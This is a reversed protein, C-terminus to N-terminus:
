RKKYNNKVGKKDHDLILNKTSLIGSIIDKIKISFKTKKEIKTISIIGVAFGIILFIMLYILNDQKKAPLFHIQSEIYEEPFDEPDDYFYQKHYKGKLFLDELQDSYHKSNSIGRQGSPIVSLGKKMNSLDIIMRESAGGTARGEGESIDVRSPNVTYGEGDAEYPGKSLAELGTLHPFYAKHLGGWRWASVKDTEYFDELFDITRDLAKIIIDDRDEIEATTIDDFWASNPTERMLKELVNLQPLKIADYEDFEDEFTYKMFLDRWKRYITPAALERYMEYDWKNLTTLIDDITSTKESTPLSEIADILYPTFFKAPTSSVDLQFKKMKDVDISGNETNNLLENIRRARYGAAYPQQLFYKRYEPGVVMQNASALYHQDPNETHPLEEFPIYGIWEGEGKSADYPFTGNENGDRIPVVGTPRIAINGYIDAYIINQAANGFWRSSENFEARNKAHNFGYYAITDYTIDHATWQPALVIDEEDLSQPLDDLFKNFVPGHLTRKVKFEIPSKGKISIDYSKTEYKKVTGNFIYHDSDIEQYYYWDMVDYRTNTFGWALHENHAVFPLPNGAVTFGYTNLDTDDAVLHAEYWLGPMNWSLHMDNCLIPKGTSSKTGDVVWNNSGLVFDRDLGMLNNKLEVKDINKLFNSVTNLVSTSPHPRPKDTLSNLANFSDNYSGYNPCIPIQYPSYRNFLEYYAEKGLAEYNILRYLDNYDWSLMLGMMKYFLLSNLLSWRKPKFGIIAYEIPLEEQHTEIYYNVGDAHRELEDVFDIEGNKDKEELADLSKEAWYKLGTALIYKDSDLSTEGLIESLEGQLFRNAMDMFFLRDQAHIYGLAFFLDDESEAYIHPIGWEDRYVIVEDDLGEIYLVEDEPVEGPVKWLGNGPFIINGLPAFVGLLPVSFATFIVITITITISIKKIVKKEQIRM